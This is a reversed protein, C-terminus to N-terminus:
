ETSGYLSVVHSKSPTGVQGEAGQEGKLWSLKAELHSFLDGTSIGETSDKSRTLEEIVSRLISVNPTDSPDEDDIDAKRRCALIDDLSHCDAFEPEERYIVPKPLNAFCEAQKEKFAILSKNLRLM